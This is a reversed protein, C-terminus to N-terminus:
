LYDRSITREDWTGDWGLVFDDSMVETTSSVDNRYRKRSYVVHTLASHRGDDTSGEDEFNSLLHVPRRKSYSIPSESLHRLYLINVHSFYTGWVLREIVFRREAAESASAETSFIPANRPLPQRSNVKISCGTNVSFTDTVHKPISKNAHSINGPCNTLKPHFFPNSIIFAPQNETDNIHRYRITRNHIHHFPACESLSM